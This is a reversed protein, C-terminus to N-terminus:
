FKLLHIDNENDKMLKSIRRERDKKMEFLERDEALLADLRKTLAEEMAKQAVSKSASFHSSSESRNRKAAVRMKKCIQGPTGSSCSPTPETPPRDISADLLYEVDQFEFLSDDDNELVSGMAIAQEEPIINSSFETPALTMLHPVIAAIDPDVQADPIEPGGGTAM